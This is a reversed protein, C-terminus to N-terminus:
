FPLPEVDRHTQRDDATVNRTQGHDAPPPGDRTTAAAARTARHRRPRGPPPPQAPQAHQHARPLSTLTVGRRVFSMAADPHLTVNWGSDHIAHHHDRCILALNDLETPGDAAVPVVHHNDCVDVPRTCSPFRCGGDRAVLAARLRASVKPHAATVGLVQSGDTVVVRMTADCTLRRAAQSTLEIPGRGTAWHLRAAGSGTPTDGDLVALDAIVLMSPRATSPASGCGRCTGGAADDADANDDDNTTHRHRTLRQECLAKFRDVNSRRRDARTGDGDDLHEDDRHGTSPAALASLAAAATDADLRGYLEATGDLRPQITLYRDRLAATERDAHLDARADNVLGDVAAALRDGDLRLMADRDAHLTADVWARQASTLNRTALVIARVVGWSVVGHRFWGSVAPMDALREAAALMMGADAGTRGAVARLWTDRTLGHGAIVARHDASQLVDIVAATLRDMAKLLTATACLGDGGGDNDRGVAVAAQDAATDIIAAVDTLTADQALTSDLSMHRVYM